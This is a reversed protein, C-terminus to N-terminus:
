GEVGNVYVLKVNKNVNKKKIKINIHTLKKLHGKLERTHHLNMM